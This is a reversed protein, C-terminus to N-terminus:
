SIRLQHITEMLRKIRQPDAPNRWNGDRKLYTGVIFADAFPFFKNINEPNIGSGVIVPLQSIKKVKKVEELDPESGTCIGTVIIGDSLFFEAAKATEAIDIDSTISHSSHKKKIDTFIKIPAADIVKRYRLLEGACSNIFGEDAIHAFVFGEVRIFDLSAAKAVALAEKNAAALIQIGVERDKMEKKVLHGIVAMAAMIEPGVGGNLYPLDNMNEIMVADIGNQNYVRAEEVCLSCMEDISLRNQPTGPLAPVHIMGIVPKNEFKM